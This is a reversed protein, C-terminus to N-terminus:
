TSFLAEEISDCAQYQLVWQYTGDANPTARSSGLVWTYGNESDPRTLNQILDDIAKDHIDTWGYPIEPTGYATGVPYLSLQPFSYTTLSVTVVPAYVSYHEVGKYIMQALTLTADSLGNFSAYSDWDTEELSEWQRIASLDPKESDDTKDAHWTKIPREVQTFDVAVMAAQRNQVTTVTMRGVNGKERVLKVDSIFPYGYGSAQTDSGGAPLDSDEVYSYRDYALATELLKDYPGQWTEVKKNVTPGLSIEKHYTLHPESSGGGSAFDGSLGEIDDWTLDAM